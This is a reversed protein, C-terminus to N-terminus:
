SDVSKLRKCVLTTFVVLLCSSCIWDQWTVGRPGLMKQLLTDQVALLHVAGLQELGHGGVGADAAGEVVLVHESVRLVGPQELPLLLIIIHLILLLFVDMPSFDSHLFTQLHKHVLVGVSDRCSRNQGCGLSHPYIREETDPYMQIVTKLANLTKIPAGSSVGLLKPALWVSSGGPCSCLMRTVGVKM